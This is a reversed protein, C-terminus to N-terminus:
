DLPEESHIEGWKEVYDAAKRLAKVDDKFLGIGLNCRRCLLGRVLNYIHCHDVDAGHRDLLVGCIACEGGQEEYMQIYETEGVDFQKRVKSMM